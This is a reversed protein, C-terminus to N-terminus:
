KEVVASGRGCRSFSLAALCTLAVAMDAMSCAVANHQESVAAHQQWAVAAESTLSKGGGHLCGGLARM